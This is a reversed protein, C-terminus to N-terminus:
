RQGEWQARRWTPPAFDCLRMAPRSLRYAQTIARRLEARELAADPWENM